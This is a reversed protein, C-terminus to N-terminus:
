ALVFSQTFLRAIGYSSETVQLSATYGGADLYYFAGPTATTDTRSGSDFTWLYTLTGHGNYSSSQFFSATVPATDGSLSMSFLATLTPAVVTVTTSYLSASFSGTHRLSVAYSQTNTYTVSSTLTALTSTQGNGFNWLYSSTPQTSNNTSTNTFSVTIPGVVSNSTATFAAVVRPVSCSIIQVVTDSTGDAYTAVLSASYSGTNSYFHPPPNVLTSDPSGDGFSWVYTDVEPSPTLNTFTITAPAIPSSPTYSFNAVESSINFYDYTPVGGGGAAGAAVATMQTQQSPPQTQQAQQEAIIRAMLAEEEAIEMWHKKRPPKQYANYPEFLFPTM